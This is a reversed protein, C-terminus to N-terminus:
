FIGKLNLSLGRVHSFKKEKTENTKPYAMVKPDDGGNEIDKIKGKSNPSCM